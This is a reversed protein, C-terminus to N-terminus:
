NMQYFYLIFPLISLKQPFLSVNKKGNKSSYFIYFSCCKNSVSIKHLMISTKVTVKLWGLGNKCILVKLFVLGKFLLESIRNNIYKKLISKFM